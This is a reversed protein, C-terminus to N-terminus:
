MDDSLIRDVEITGDRVTLRQRKLKPEDKIDVEDDEEQELDGGTAERVQKSLEIVLLELNEIRKHHRKREKRAVKDNKSVRKRDKEMKVELKKRRKKEKSLKRGLEKTEADRIDRQSLEMIEEDKERLTRANEQLLNGHSVSLKSYTSLFTENRKLLRDIHAALLDERTTAPLADTRDPLAESAERERRLIERDENPRQSTSRQSDERKPRM